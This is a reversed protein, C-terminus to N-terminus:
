DLMITISKYFSRYHLHTYGDIVRASADLRFTYACRRSTPDGPVTASWPSAPVLSGNVGAWKKSPSVHAAYSDGVVSRSRNDGWLAVLSWGRLHQEADHATVRFTFADLSGTVIGCTNVVNTGNRIQDITVLPLSNDVRLVVSRGALGGNGIESAATQASYLRITVTHLGNPLGLTDLRYGLWHNYWLENPPRVPYFGSASPATLQAQFTNLPANWRYDTFSQRPEAGGVFLKYFRAGEAHARTHNFMVGLTGGFAADKTQFFYGADPTTDAYGDSVPNPPTSRSIRSVPVHGVGLLMPGTAQYTGGTLTCRAIVQDCCVLLETPSLVAVSSPRVPVASVVVSAHPVPATLDIRQVRNTPDRETILIGTEGADAWTMFFPASLGTVVTDRHGSSLDIRVVRGAAPGATQQSVYAHLGDATVLLGIGREIGAAVLSRTGTGLDVRLLRGAAAHEIVFAQNRAEDLVIQHPATMGSTVVTASSRDAKTLDVRLLAGSRETVYAYREDACVKVDEPQTYGTGLVQYLPQPRYTIWRIKLNYGYELVEVKTFNGANTRVAFVTGVTLQNGVGVSGDIPADAYELAMLEAATVTAFGVAGLRRLRAGHQPTLARKTANIQRWWVDHAPTHPGEVGADFDFMWTGRITATGSSRISTTPTLNLRSLKGSFEVFVLQNRSLRYDCGIAGGLGSALETVDPAAPAAAADFIAAVKVALPRDDLVASTDDRAPRRPSKSSM